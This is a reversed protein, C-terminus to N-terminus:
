QTTLIRRRELQADWVALVGEATRSIDFEAARARAAERMQEARGPDRVGDLLDLVADGLAGPDGSPILRSADPPVLEPGAGIDTTVVPTGQALAEVIVRGFPEPLRSAHVFVDLSAMLPEVPSVPGTFTLQPDLGAASVAAHLGREYAAENEPFLCEGVIAFRVGARTAAIRAAADIFVDQGKWHAIQGVIGVLLTSSGDGTGPRNAPAPQGALADRWACIAAETAPSPRVGNYVVSTREGAPTGAFPAAAAKSICIVHDPFRGASRAFGRGVAGPELIDRVHWILPAGAARAARVALVHAKMSNTHIVDPELDRALRALRSSAAAAAGVQGFATWPRKALDWRSLGRLGAGMVVPHVTVGHARLADALPGGGPLAVHMDLVADRKVAQEALGRVLDVLDLQGGSLRTEHDVFLVRM